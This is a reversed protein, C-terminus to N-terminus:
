VSDTTEPDKSTLRERIESTKQNTRESPKAKGM